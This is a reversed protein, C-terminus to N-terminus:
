DVIDLEVDENLPNKRDKKFFVLFSISGVLIVTLLISIGNLIIKKM